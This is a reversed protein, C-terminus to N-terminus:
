RHFRTKTITLVFVRDVKGETMLVETATQLTAGSRYLDDFLLVIEGSYRLDAVEFAGKLLRMREDFGKIDKLQPTPKIKRLYDFDVKVDIQEGIARALAYVPQFAREINSPPIPIIAALYPTVRLTKMFSAAANAIPEVQSEDFCYKLGYLAQGIETREGDPFPKHFDLAWGFRWNGKLAKPNIEM